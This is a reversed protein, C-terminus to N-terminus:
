ILYNFVTILRSITLLSLIFASFSQTALAKKKEQNSLVDILILIPGSIQNISRTESKLAASKKRDQLLGEVAERPWKDAYTALEISKRGPYVAGSWEKGPKTGLYKEVLGKIDERLASKMYDAFDNSRVAEYLQGKYMIRKSM